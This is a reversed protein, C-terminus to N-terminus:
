IACFIHEKEISKATIQIWRKRNSKNIKAIEKFKKEKGALYSQSDMAYENETKLKKTQM